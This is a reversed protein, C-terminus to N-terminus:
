ILPIGLLITGVAKPHQTGQMRAGQDNGPMEGAVTSKVQVAQLKHTQIIICLQLVLQPASELFTALLHLMSVDAFEYVMRWYYRWHETESSQRSRVGLYITHFYRCRHQLVYSAPILSDNCYLTSSATERDEPPVRHIICLCVPCRNVHHMGEGGVRALVLMVM